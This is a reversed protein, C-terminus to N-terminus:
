WPHEAYFRDKEENKSPEERRGRNFSVIKTSKELPLLAGFVILIFFPILLLLTTNAAQIKRGRVVM